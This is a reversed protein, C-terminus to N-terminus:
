RILDIMYDRDEYDFRIDGEDKVHLIFECSDKNLNKTIGTM